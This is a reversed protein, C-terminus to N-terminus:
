EFAIKILYQCKNQHHLYLKTSLEVMLEVWKFDATQQKQLKLSLHELAAEYIFVIEEIEINASNSKNNSTKKKASLSKKSKNSSM